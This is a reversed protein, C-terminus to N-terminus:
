FKKDFKYIYNLIEIISLSSGPHGSKAIHLSQILLKRIEKCEIYFDNIM